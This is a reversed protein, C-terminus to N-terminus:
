GRAHRELYRRSQMEILRSSTREFEFRLREGLYLGTPGAAAAIVVIAGQDYLADILMIFRRAADDRLACFVPVGSVFVTRYRRAIELYDHSGRPGECLATFDFWIAAPAAKRAELTRGEINLRLPGADQGDTLTRYLTSMDAPAADDEVIWYLRAQELTRLRYDVPGDLHVVEMHRELLAIAPLFRQRQLGEKYLDEPARNSTAVLVVGRRFLGDLLGALIMADGIDAVFFEDLCILRVREARLAAVRDLPSVAGDVGRLDAHVSQMFRYFHSREREPFPLADYFLDMLHTKGRGVGGWLYLGRIPPAAAGRWAHALRQTWGTRRKGAQSLALALRDLSRAAATQAADVAFARTAVERALATAVPGGNMTAEGM